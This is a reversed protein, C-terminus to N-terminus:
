SALFHCLLREIVNRRTIRGDRGSGHVSDVDIEHEAVLRRVAPSLRQTESRQAAAAKDTTPPTPAPAAPEPAPAAASSAPEAPSSAAQPAAPEAAAGEAEIVALVVGVDVTQGAEVLIKTITGASPAPIEMSVKDTEVDLLIEDVEVRDGVQKHWAAVTGEAVTEGLQPMLVNM